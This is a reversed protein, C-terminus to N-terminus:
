IDNIDNIYYYIKSNYSNYRIVPNEVNKITRYM